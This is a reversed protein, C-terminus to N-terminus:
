AKDSGSDSAIPLTAADPRPARSPIPLPQPLLVKVIEGREEEYVMESDLTLQFYRLQYLGEATFEVELVPTPGNQVAPLLFKHRLLLSRSPSAYVGKGDMRIRPLATGNVGFVRADYEILLEVDGRIRIARQLWSRRIAQSYLTREPNM